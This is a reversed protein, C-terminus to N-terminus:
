QSYTFTIVSCVPAASGGILYPRYRWTHMVRKIQDDYGAYATSKLTTVSSIEGGTTLCMKFTGSVRAVGDRSIATAVVDPPTIQTEGSLRLGAVVSPAVVTPQAPPTVIVPVAIPPKVEPPDGVGCPEVLCGSGITPLDHGKGDGGGGDGIPGTPEESAITRQDKQKVTPQTVEKIIKRTPKKIPAAAPRPAAGGGSNGPPNMVALDTPGREVALKELRWMGAVVFGIAFGVHAIASVTLFIRKARKSRAPPNVSAFMPTAFNSM